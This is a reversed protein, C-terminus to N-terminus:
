IKSVAKLLIERSMYNSLVKNGANNPHLGDYLYRGANSSNYNMEGWGSEFVASIGSEAYADILKTSYYESFKKIWDNTRGIYPQLYGYPTQIPTSLIVTANPYTKMISEIAWRLGGALSSKQELSMADIPTERSVISNFEYESYEPTSNRTDNIGCAIVIIDPQPRNFENILRNMFKIENSITAYNSDIPIVCSSLDSNNPYSETLGDNSTYFSFEKNWIPCNIDYSIHAEGRDKWTAGGRALNYVKKAGTLKALNYAWSNNLYTISDGLCYVIKDHLSLKTASDLKDSIIEFKNKPTTEYVKLPTISIDAVYIYGDKLPTYEMRYATDEGSGRLLITLNGENETDNVGFSALAFNGSLRTTGKLIYTNNKLVKYTKVKFQEYEDGLIGVSTDALYKNSYESSIPLEEGIEVGMFLSDIYNYIANYATITSSVEIHSYAYENNVNNVHSDWDYGIYITVPNNNIIAKHVYHKSRGTDITIDLKSDANKLMIRGSYGSGDYITALRFGSIDAGIAILYMLNNIAKQENETIGNLETINKVNQKRSIKNQTNRINAGVNAHVTGLNDIKADNLEADDTTSGEPLSSFSDMRVKLLNLEQNYENFIPEIISKMTGDEVMSDIKNNIENRVDLNDFYGNVFAKLEAYDSDMMQKYTEWTKPLDKVTLYLQVIERLDSDFNNSHPFEYMFAM